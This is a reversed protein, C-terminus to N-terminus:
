LFPVKQIDVIKFAFNAKVIFHLIACDMQRAAVVVGDGGVGEGHSEAAVTVVAVCVAVLACVPGGWSVAGFRNQRHVCVGAM